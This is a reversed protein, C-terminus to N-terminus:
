IDHAILEIRDSCNGGRERALTEVGEAFHKESSSARASVRRSANCM